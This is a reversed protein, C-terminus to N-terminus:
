TVTVQHVVRREKIDYKVFGNFFFSDKAAPSLEEKAVTACYIYRYDRGVVTPNIMLFDVPQDPLLTEM